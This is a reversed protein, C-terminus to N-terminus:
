NDKPSTPCLGIAAIVIDDHRMDMIQPLLYLVVWAGILSLKLIKM